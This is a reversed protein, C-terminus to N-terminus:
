WIISHGIIVIDQIILDIVLKIVMPLTVVYTRGSTDNNAVMTITSGNVNTITIDDHNYNVSIANGFRDVKKM